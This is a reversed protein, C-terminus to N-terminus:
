IILCLVLPLFVAPLLNMIKIKTIDLMNLAIAIILLSGVVAMHAVVVATLVPAVVAALLTLAGELLIVPFASFAVGIGMTSAFVVATVCDILSKSYLVSNDGRIGSDISGVVAMAGVCFVLTATVFGEAFRTNGGNKNLRGEIKEGLRNILKDLNLLEGILAGLASSLVVVLANIESSQFLGTIGIYLVCLAMGSIITKRLREPMGRKLLTGLAGGILVLVFNVVAGSLLIRKIM